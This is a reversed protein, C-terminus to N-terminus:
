KEKMAAAMRSPLKFFRECYDSPLIEGKVRECGRAHKVEFHVCQSCHRMGKAPHEFGVESKPYQQM